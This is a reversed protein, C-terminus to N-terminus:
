YGGQHRQPSLYELPAVRRRLLLLGFIGVIVGVVTSPEPTAGARETITIGGTGSGPDVPQDPNYTTSIGGSTGNYTDTWLWWDNLSPPLYYPSGDPLVGVLQTTFGLFSGAPANMGNCGLVGRSNGGPLCSDAPTDRFSLTNGAEYKPLEGNTPNFYFPFSHATGPWGPYGTPAPDLFPTSSSTLHVGDTRYYPSPDPVNTLAQQWDFNAFGCDLAAQSLSTGANPTFGAKMTTGSLSISPSVANQLDILCTTSLPVTIQLSTDFLVQYSPLNTSFDVGYSYSYTGPPTNAPVVFTRLSSVGTTTPGVVTQPGLYGGKGFDDEFYAGSIAPNFNYSSLISGAIIGLHPSQSSLGYLSEDGVYTWTTGDPTTFLGTLTVQGGANVTYVHPSLTLSIYSASAVNALIALGSSVLLLRACCSFM